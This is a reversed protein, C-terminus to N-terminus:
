SNLAIGPRETALRHASHLHQAFWAQLCGELTRDCADCSGEYFADMMRAINELLAHRHSTRSREACDCFLNGELACHASAQEYLLGLGELVADASPRGALSACTANITEILRRHEYDVPALGTELESNWETCRM